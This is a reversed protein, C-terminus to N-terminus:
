KFNENYKSMLFISILSAIFSNFITFDSYFSLFIGYILAIWGSFCDTCILLPKIIFHYKDRKEYKVFYEFISRVIYHYFYFFEGKFKYKHISFATIFSVILVQITLHLNLYVNM